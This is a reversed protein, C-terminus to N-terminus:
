AANLYEDIKKVCEPAIEVEVDEETVPDHQWGTLTIDGERGTEVYAYTANEYGVHAEDEVYGYTYFFGEAQVTLDDFELEFYFEGGASNELKDKIKDLQEKTLTIQTM